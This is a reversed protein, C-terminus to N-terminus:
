QPLHPQLQPKKIKINQLLFHFNKKMIKLFLILVKNNEVFKKFELIYISRKM